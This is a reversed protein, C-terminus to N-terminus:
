FQLESLRVALIVCHLYLDTNRHDLHVYLLMLLLVKCLVLNVFCKKVNEENDTHDTSVKVSVPSLLAKFAFSM